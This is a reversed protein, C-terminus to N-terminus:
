RGIIKIIKIGTDQIEPDTIMMLSEYLQTVNDEHVENLVNHVKLYSVIQLLCYVSEKRVSLYRRNKICDAISLLLENNFLEVCESSLMVTTRKFIINLSKLISCQIKWTNKKMRQSLISCVTHLFKIQTSQVGRPWSRGLAEFAASKLDFVTNSDTDHLQDQDIDLIETTILEYIDSFANVELSEIVEGTATVAIMKYLVDQKKCQSLLCEVIQLPQPNDLTMISDKCLVCVAKMSQLLSHKGDWLRGKLSEMLSLLIISLNSSDLEANTNEAITAIAKAAQRKLDWSQSSLSPCVFDLIEKMYLRIATSTSPVIEQWTSNWLNSMVESNPDENNVVVHMALFVLPVVDILYNKIIDSSRLSMEHLAYAVPLSDGKELYMNKLKEVLKTISTEKAVKIVYGIAKAYSKCVTISTDTIGSLLGGLLKGAYPFLDDQSHRCLDIVFDATSVKTTVGVGSRIIDNLPPILSVLVNKDIHPVCLKIAELLPSSKSLKTRISDLKEQVNNSSDIGNLQLSVTNLIQPELSSISKLLLPIIMSIHPKLLLGAKEIVRILSLLCLGRVDHSPHSTGNNVFIPLVCEVTTTAVTGSGDCLRVTVSLLTKAASEASKRVTEKIDDLVKLLLKWLESLYEIIVSEKINVSLFDRLGSCSSERNRWQSSNVNSCIEKLIEEYYEDIIKNNDFSIIKWINSMAVQVSTIPDYKYIFLRPVLINLYPKLQDRAERVISSVSFAAGKKSNWIAHHNALSMFKYVLDPKNLDSALSCLEKYTSLGSGEPTKGLKMSPSFIETDGSVPVNMGKGEMLTNVLYQLLQEKRQADSFEYLLGLGRSAVEQLVDNTESLYSLFVHQFRPLQEQFSPYSKCYKLLSLTWICAAQRVRPSSNYGYEDIVINITKNFIDDSPTPLPLSLPSPRYDWPNRYLECYVGAAICSLGEGISFSVDVHSQERYQILTKLAKDKYPFSPDGLSFFGITHSCKDRLVTNEDVSDEMREVVKDFIFEKTLSVKIDSVLDSKSNSELELESVSDPFPLPGSRVIEGISDIATFIIDSDLSNFFSLIKSIIKEIIIIFNSPLTSLRKLSSACVQGLVIIGKQQQVYLPFQTDDLSDQILILLENYEMKSSLYGIIRAAGQKTNSRPYSALQKINKIDKMFTEAIPESLLILQLLSYIGVTAVDYDSQPLLSMRILELYKQLVDNKLFEMISLFDSVKRMAEKDIPQTIDINCIDTVTWGDHGCSYLLSHYCFLLIHKMALPTYPLKTSGIVYCQDSSLISDVRSSIYQIVNAFPPFQPNSELQRPRLGNLGEERVELQSDGCAILSVYRSPFHSFPFLSHACFAAAKRSQVLKRNIHTLLISELLTVNKENTENVYVGSVSNICEQIVLRNDKNTEKELEEFLRYLHKADKRLIHPAKKSLCSLGSFASVILKNDKLDNNDIIKYLATLLLPAMVTLRTSLCKNIISLIFEMSLLQLKANSIDGFLGDFVVEGKIGRHFRPIVTQTFYKRSPLSYRSEM